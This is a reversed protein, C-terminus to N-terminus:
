FLRKPPRHREIEAMLIKTFPNDAADKKVLLYEDIMIRPNLPVYQVGNLPRMKVSPFAVFSYTRTDRAIRCSLAPDTSRSVRRLEHGALRFREEIGGHSTGEDVIVVPLMEVTSWPISDLKALPDGMPVQLCLEDQYLLYGECDEKRVQKIKEFGDDIGNLLLIDPLEKDPDSTLSVRHLDERSKQSLKIPCDLRKKLSEIMAENIYAALAVCSYVMIPSVENRKEEVLGLNKKMSDIEMLVNKMSEYVVKGEETVLIGRPSRDYLVVRLEQELRIMSKSINQPTTYLQASAKRLSGTEVVKCFEYFQELRM